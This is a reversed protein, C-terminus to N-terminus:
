YPLLPRLSGLVRRYQQPQAVLLTLPTAELDCASLIDSTGAICGKASFRLSERDSDLLPRNRPYTSRQRRRSRDDPKEGLSPIYETRKTRGM